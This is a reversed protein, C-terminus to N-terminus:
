LSPTSILLFKSVVSIDMLILKALYFPIVCICQFLSHLGYFLILTWSTDISTRQFFLLVLFFEQEICNLPVSNFCVFHIQQKKIESFKLIHLNGTIRRSPSSIALKGLIVLKGPISSVRWLIIFVTFFELVASLKIWAKMKQMHM